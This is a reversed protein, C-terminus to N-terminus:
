IVATTNNRGHSVKDMIFSHALIFGEEKANSGTMYKTM